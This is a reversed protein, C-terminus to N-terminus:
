SKMLAKLAENGDEVRADILFDGGRLASCGYFANKGVVAAGAMSVTQLAECDAFCSAPIETLTEPLVVSELSKCSAFAGVGLSQLSVGATAKVLSLCWAFANEGVSLVTTPLCLEELWICGSFARLGVSAVGEPLWVTCLSACEYFAYDGISSCGSLVTVSRLNKPYFGKSFQPAKAGFVYALYDTEATGGGVFPVTLSQLASCNELAGLGIEKLSEGFTLTNLSECHAMSFPELASLGKANIYKLSECRYLSYEGLIKVSEPLIVAVLDNCDYLAYAPLSESNGGLILFDLNRLDQVNNREYTEAGFLYGLFQHERKEPLPTRLAYVNSCGVLIEKGFATVSDPIWLVNLATKDRFAGDAIGTVTKGGIREPIRVKAETGHYATVTLTGNEETVDFLAGDSEALDTFPLAALMAYDTHDVELPKKEPVSNETQADTPPETQEGKGACATVSFATLLALLVAFWRKKM